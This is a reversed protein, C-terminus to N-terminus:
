TTPLVRRARRVVALDVMTGDVEVVAEGRAVAREYGEIVRHAWVRQAETPTLVDNITAVQRPHVAPRPGFGLRRLGDTSARLGDLDDFKTYVPGMPPDIGAASSALVLATRVALLEREDPSPDIGVEATLDAEGIALQVVDPHRALAPADLVAQATEVLAVFPRGVADCTVLSAKALIPTVAVGAFAAITDDLTTDNAFRVYIAPGGAREACWAVAEAAAAARRAPAVADELDVIVADTGSAAAKDFRDPRDGPVYLLSRLV